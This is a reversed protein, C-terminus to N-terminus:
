PKCEKQFTRLMERERAWQTYDEILRGAGVVAQYDGPTEGTSGAGTTARIPVGTIERVTVSRDCHEFMLSYSTSNITDLRKKYGDAIGRQKNLEAECAGREANLAKALEVRARGKEKESGAKWGQLYVVGLVSAVVLLYALPKWFTRLLSFM